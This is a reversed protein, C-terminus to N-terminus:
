ETTTGAQAPPATECATVTGSSQAPASWTEESEVVLGHARLLATTVGEGAVLRPQGTTPDHRWIQHSGCSPSREKLVARRARVARALALVALAGRRFEETVDHGSATVVRLPSLSVITAPERPVPLGGFVEPCVPIAQGQQVLAMVRPDTRAQGDYRCPLGALCASVLLPAQDITM